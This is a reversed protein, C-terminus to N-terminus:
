PESIRLSRSYTKYLDFLAIIEDPGKSLKDITIRSSRGEPLTLIINHTTSEQYSNMENSYFSRTDTELRYAAIEDWTHFQQQGGDSFTLGEKSLTLYQHQKFIQIFATSALTVVLLTLIAGSMFTRGTAMMYMGPFLTTIAVLLM